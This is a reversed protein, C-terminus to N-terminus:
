RPVEVVAVALIQDAIKRLDRITDWIPAPDCGKAANEEDACFAFAKALRAAERKMQYAAEVPDRVGDLQITIPTTM